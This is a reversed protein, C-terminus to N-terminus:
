AAMGSRLAKAVGEVAVASDWNFAGRLVQAHEDALCACREITSNREAVLAAAILVSDFSSSMNGAIREAIEEIDAPIGSAESM